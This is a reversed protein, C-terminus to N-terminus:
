RYQSKIAGWTVPHVPLAVRNASNFRATATGVGVFPVEVGDTTLYAGRFDRLVMPTEFGGCSAGPIGPGDVSRTHDFAFRALFYRQNLDPNQVGAPYASALVVRLLTTPLGFAAPWLDVARIQLSQLDGQLAPCAAAEAAPPLHDVTARATGQCGAEDFRWADPVLGQSDGIAVWVEYAKHPENPGVVSAYLSYPGPGSSVRDVPGTCSDWTLALTAAAHARAAPILSLAALLATVVLSRHTPM